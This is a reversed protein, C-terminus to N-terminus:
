YSSQSLISHNERRIVQKVHKCKGPRIMKKIKSKVFLYKSLLYSNSIKM